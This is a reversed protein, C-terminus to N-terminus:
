GELNEGPKIVGRIRHNNSDAIVLLEVDFLVAIGEPRDLRASIAPLGDGFFGGQGFVSPGSGAVTTITGDRFVKRIRHNVTDAIFLSGDPGCAVDSPTHLRCMSAPGGDGSFGREGCGAMTTIIGDPDIRRIRHNETDAVYLVGDSDIALGSPSSLMAEKARGGDGGFGSEGFGAVTDIFGSPDLRRVRHNGTDAIYLNGLKDLVVGRPNNLLASTAPGGDCGFGGGSPGVPGSGAVTTIVGEPSIRRIRHNRSDSVFISGDASVAVSTPFCLEAEVAPGNDGSFGGGKPGTPGSGAVTTIVGDPAVKRVRHNVTDAIYLSGDPGFDVGFPAFLLASLANGGDGAYGGNGYGVRGSGALTTITGPAFDMMFHM